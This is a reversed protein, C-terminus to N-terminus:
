REPVYFSLASRGYQERRNLTLQGTEEPMSAKADHEVVAVGNKELLALCSLAELVDPIREFARPPDAFVVDFPGSAPSLRRLGEPLPLRLCNFGTECRARKLNARILRLSEPHNDVFVAYEAGRSLAEIGNAGTGAFLDLFRCGEMRPGLINFLAERVRDLTPRVRSDRGCELRIGKASGAIVRM